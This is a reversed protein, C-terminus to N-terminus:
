DFGAKSLGAMISEVAAPVFYDRLHAETGRADGDLRRLLAIADRAAEAHGLQGLSAVVYRAVPLYAPNATLADQGARLAEIYNAALYHAGAMAPLWIFRRPDHPSLRLALKVAALAEHPRNLYNYCFGLNAHAAAHSPHLRIAQQLDRVAELHAKTRLHSLGLAFHAHPDRPDDRAAQEALARAESWIAKPDDEWRAQGAYDLTISLSAAAQAYHPDIALGQRFYARAQLNDLPTYRYHHWQGRQLSDYATPEHQPMRVVRDRERRLLEPEIAGVITRAIEDQLKFVNTAAHEFQEAFLTEQTEADYLRATCRLRPHARRLTGEAVFRAGLQQGVFRVDFDHGRFAFSSARSIVPFSRWGALVTIVEEAVGDALYEEEGSGGPASFPLVAIASREGFGEVLTSGAPRAEAEDDRALAVKYVRVPRPLNKLPKLGLDLFAFGAEQARKAVAESVAIGGVAAVGELRAALNVGDGFIDGDEIIVEGISIGIRFRIRRGPEEAAEATENRRQICVAARVAQVASAFEILAGDGTTKVVRGSEAGAEREVIDRLKRRLRGHTGDEDASMLRSYGVVDLAMVAVLRRSLPNVGVIASEVPV